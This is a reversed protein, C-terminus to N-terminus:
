ADDLDSFLKKLRLYRMDVDGKRVARICHTCGGISRQDKSHELLFQDRDLSDASLLYLNALRAFRKELDTYSTTTGCLECGEEGRLDEASEFLFWAKSLPITSAHEQFLWELWSIEMDRIQENTANNRRNANSVAETIQQTNMAAM